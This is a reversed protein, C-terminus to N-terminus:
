FSYENQSSPASTKLTVERIMFMLPLSVREGYQNTIAQLKFNAVQRVVISNAKCRMTSLGSDMNYFSDTKLIKGSNDKIVANFGKDMSLSMRKGESNTFEYTHYRMADRSNGKTKGYRVDYDPKIRQIRYSTPVNIGAMIRQMLRKLESEPYSDPSKGIIIEGTVSAIRNWVRRDFMPSYSGGGWLNTRLTKGDPCVYYNGRITPENSAHAPANSMAGTAISVLIATALKNMM